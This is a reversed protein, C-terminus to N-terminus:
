LARADETFRQLKSVGDHKLLIEIPRAALKANATRIWSRWKTEEDGLLVRLRLVFRVLAEARDAEGKESDVTRTGQRMGILAGEPVGIVRATEAPTLGLCKAAEMAAKTLELAKQDEHHFRTM